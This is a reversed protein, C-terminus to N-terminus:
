EVSKLSEIMDIDRIDKSMLANVTFTFLFTLGVAYLYSLPEIVKGFMMMEFEVTRIIYQHLIVGIVLGLSAGAITNIINERFIYSSAEHDYFGLVKLTAIERKREDINIGTLCFLVVFALLAGCIILVFIVINLAGLIDDYYDRTKSVFELTVAGDSELLKESIEDRRAVGIRTTKGVIANYAAKGGSVQTYYGPSMYIFHGVYNETIGSVSIIWQEDDDNILTMEDGESLRFLSALKRTILAGEDTIRLDQSRKPNFLHIFEPLQDPEEPVVLTAEYTVASARTKADVKERHHYQWDTIEDISKIDRELASKEARSDSVTVRFDYQYVRDFQKIALTRISDRLGFGTLVLATCGAIGIVTMFFRKKYRLINRSTVKASFSMRSWLSPILELLVRRGPSPAKPRLMEAPVETLNSASVLVAPILVSASTFALVQACLIPYLPTEVKPTSYMIRYGYDFVVKPFFWYGVSVGLITGPVCVSLAYIIYKSFIWRSSYGLSRLIAATPRDDEVIRVMSTFSVLAAVLFFFFPFVRVISKVRESNQRFGEVGADQDLGLVYCKAEPMTRLVARAASLTQRTAAITGAAANKRAIFGALSDQLADGAISLEVEAVALQSLGSYWASDLASFGSLLAAQKDVLETDGVALDRTLADLSALALQRKQELEDAGTTASAGTDAGAGPGSSVVFITDADFIADIGAGADADIGVGTTAGSGAGYDSSVGTGVGTDMGADAGMGMGAGPDAGADMGGLSASLALRGKELALKAQELEMRAALLESNGAELDRRGDLVKEYLATRQLLLAQESESFELRARALEEEGSALEAAAKDLGAEAVAIDRAVRSIVVRRRHAALEDGIIQLEAEVEASLDAFEKDFRNYANPNELFVFADTYLSLTFDKFPIYAYGQVVGSGKKSAGLDFEVYLPSEVFGTIVYTERAVYDALASDDGTSLRMVSGVTLGSRRANQAWVVCEGPNAPFRGETLTPTAAMDDEMGFPAMSHIRYLASVDGIQAFLDVAYAPEVRHVGRAGRLREIYNDTLGYTSVIRIDFMNLRDLYNCFTLKMDPSASRLGIFFASGLAAILILALSGRKNGWITRLINKAYAGPGKGSNERNNRQGNVGSGSSRMWLRRSIM